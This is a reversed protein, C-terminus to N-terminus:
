KTPLFRLSAQHFNGKRPIFYAMLLLVAAPVTGLKQVTEAAAKPLFCVSEM